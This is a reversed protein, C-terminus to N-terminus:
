DQIKKSYNMLVKWLEKIFEEDFVMEKNINNYKIINEIVEKERDAHLVKLKREKKHEGIKISVKMREKLIDIINEDIKNIEKRYGDLIESM